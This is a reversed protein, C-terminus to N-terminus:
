TTRLAGRSLGRTLELVVFLTLLLVWGAVLLLAGGSSYMSAVGSMDGGFMVFLNTGGLPVMSVGSWNEWFMSAALVTGLGYGGMYIVVPGSSWGEPYPEAALAATYAFVVLMGGLYVLILALPLFTGGHALLLCCGVGAVMVLGFAAFYPAPHSAVAIMGLLFMTMLATLSYTM